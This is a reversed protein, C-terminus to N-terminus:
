ERRLLVGPPLASELAAFAREVAEGDRGEATLKVRHDAGPDFRPYSGFSVEPFRAVTADLAATIEVESCSLFLSRLHFRPGSFRGSLSEVQSRFLMPVGPLLYTEDVAIVPYWIGPNRLLRAGDPVDALRLAADPLASLGARAAYHTRVLQELEPHRVVPVGLALSVGEVTVDDHTPGIGGSCFLHDVRPRNRRVADAIEEEEDPLVEIRRLEVGRARLWGILWSANEEVVKGSLVEAGIVLISATRSM